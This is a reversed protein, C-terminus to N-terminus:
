EGGEMRVWYNDLAATIEYKDVASLRAKGVEPLGSNMYYKTDWFIMFVFGKDQAVAYNLEAHQAYTKAFECTTEFLTM